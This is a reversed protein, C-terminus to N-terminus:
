IYQIYIRVVYIKIQKFLFMSYDRTINEKEMMWILCGLFTSYGFIQIYTNYLFIIFFYYFRQHSPSVTQLFSRSSIFPNQYFHFIYTHVVVYMNRYILFLSIIREEVEYIRFHICEDFNHSTKFTCTVHLVRISPNAKKYRLKTYPTTSYIGAICSDETIQTHIAKSIM